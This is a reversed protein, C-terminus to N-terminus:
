QQPLTQEVAGEPAKFADADPTVFEVNSIEFQGLQEELGEEKSWNWFRWLMPIPIGDVEEFNEYTIAHPEKAPPADNGFYTVIYAMAHLRNTEPDRYLVYWDEPTDGVGADFTLKAADYERDLLELKGLDELRSGPDRLKMPAALFYPWTLSHFRARELGADPPSLWCSKGDFVIVTGNKLELRTKSVTTNTLMTGELRVKGGMTSRFTAKVADKTRWAAANHAKEIPLVFAKQFEDARVPLAFLMAIAAITAFRYFLQPKISITARMTM